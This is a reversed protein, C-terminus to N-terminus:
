FIYIKDSIYPEVTNKQIKTHFNFTHLEITQIQTRDSSIVPYRIKPLNICERFRLKRVWLIPIIAM